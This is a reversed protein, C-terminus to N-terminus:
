VAFSIVPQSVLGHLHEAEDSEAQNENQYAVLKGSGM